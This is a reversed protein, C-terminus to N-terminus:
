VKIYHKPKLQPPSHDSFSIIRYNKNVLALPAFSLGSHGAGHLCIINPGNNGNIYIPIDEKINYYTPFATKWDIPAYKKLLPNNQTNVPLPIKFNNNTNKPIDFYNPTSNLEAINDKVEDEDDSYDLPDTHLDIKPENKPSNEGDENEENSSKEEMDKNEPSPQQNKFSSPKM